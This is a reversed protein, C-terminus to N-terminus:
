IILSKLPLTLAALGICNNTHPRFLQKNFLKRYEGAQKETRTILIGIAHAWTYIM